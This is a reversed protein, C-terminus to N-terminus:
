LPSFPLLIFASTCVCMSVHVWACESVGGWSQCSERCHDECSKRQVPIQFSGLVTNQVYLIFGCMQQVTCMSFFTGGGEGGTLM